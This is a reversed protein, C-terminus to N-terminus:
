LPLVMHEGHNILSTVQDLDEDTNVLKIFAETPLSQGDSFWDQKIADLEGFEMHQLKGVGLVRVAFGMELNVLAADLFASPSRLFDAVRDAPIHKNGFVERIAAMKNPELLVVKNDVRMVGHDNSMQVQSWRNSLKSEPLDHGLSPCLLLSGDPLRTATVGIDNPVVIDIKDFHNLSLKMGSRVALQLAAILRINAAEGRDDTLLDHTEVASLGM